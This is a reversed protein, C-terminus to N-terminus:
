LGRQSTVGLRGIGQAEPHNSGSDTESAQPDGLAMRPVNIPVAQSTAQGTGNGLADIVRKVGVQWRDSM